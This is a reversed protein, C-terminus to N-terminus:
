LEPYKEKVLKLFEDLNHCKIDDVSCKLLEALETVTLIDNEVPATPFIETGAHSVTVVFSAPLAIGTTPKM